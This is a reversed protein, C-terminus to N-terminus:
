KFEEFMAGITDKEGYTIAYVTEAYSRAVQCLEPALNEYIHFMMVFAHVLYENAHGWKKIELTPEGSAKGLPYAVVEFGLAELGKIVLELGQVFKGRDLRKQGLALYIEWTELRPTGKGDPYTDEVQSLLKLVKTEHAATRCARTSSKLDKMLRQRKQIAPKSTAKKEECLECRCIFGWSKLGAQTAQYDAGEEPLRYGFLLETDADLDRGARVVMVDGIFSRFCNGICSHNIFSATTWIGCTTQSKDEQGQNAKNKFYELTTRPAGFCNLSIIREVLFTDVVMREGQSADAVEYDGHHLEMFRLAVEPNHYLKQVVTSVLTAQGGMTMKKSDFNVLIKLNKSAAPDNQDAFVYSFAKECLLLEGVKVAKTTFLGRGRGPSDRIEVPSSYTACDIIPPTEKAQRHMHKWKFNGTAQEVIRRGTRELETEADKNGANLALVQQLKRACLDFQELAYHAKAERFLGKETPTDGSRAHVADLLAKEPRQLRLNALSRNLLAARKHEPTAAAAIAETYLKEARGWKKQGVAANGRSRINESDPVFHPAARWRKPIREDDRALLCFDGVHDVRLSYKGDTSKKFFPEKILCVSDQPLIDEIDFEPEEPQNYLQLLVATGEEDEVIAMIVNIKHPMTMTRVLVYTGRHHEELRMKSIMLPQLENTPRTCPLYAPPMQSTKIQYQGPEMALQIMARTRYMNFDGVLMAPSPHDRPIQGKMSRAREAVIQLQKFYASFQEAESVDKVDM